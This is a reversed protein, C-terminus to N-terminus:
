SFHIAEVRRLLNYDKRAGVSWVNEVLSQHTWSPEVPMNSDVLRGHVSSFLDEEYMEPLNDSILIHLVQGSSERCECWAERACVDCITDVFSCQDTRIGYM